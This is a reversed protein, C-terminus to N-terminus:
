AWIRRFAQRKSDAAQLEALRRSWFAVLEDGRAAWADIAAFRAKLGSAPRSAGSSRARVPSGALSPNKGEEQLKRMRNSIGASPDKFDPRLRRIEGAIEERTKGGAMLLPDVISSVSMRGNAENM